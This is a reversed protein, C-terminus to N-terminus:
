TDSIASDGAEWVYENGQRKDSLIAKPATDKELLSLDCFVQTSISRDRLGPAM